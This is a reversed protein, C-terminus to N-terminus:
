SFRVSSPGAANKSLRDFDRELTDQAQMVVALSVITGSSLVDVLANIHEGRAMEGTLTGPALPRNLREVPM